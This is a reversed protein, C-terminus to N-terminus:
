QVKEIQRATDVLVIHKAFRMCIDLHRLKGCGLDILKNKPKLDFRKESTLLELTSQVLPNPKSNTGQTSYESHIQIKAMVLAQEGQM